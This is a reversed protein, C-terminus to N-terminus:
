NTPLAQRVTPAYRTTVKKEFHRSSNSQGPSHSPLRKIGCHNSAPKDASRGRPRECNRSQLNHDNLRKGRETAGRAVIRPNNACAKICCFARQLAPRQSSAAALQKRERASGQLGV